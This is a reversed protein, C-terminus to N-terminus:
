EQSASKNKKDKRVSKKSHAAAAPPGLQDGM